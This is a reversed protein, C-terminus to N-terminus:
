PNAQHTLVAAGYPAAGSQLAPVARIGTAWGYGGSRDYVCNGSTLVHRTDILVGTCIYVTGSPLEDHSIELRVVANWPASTPSAILTLSGFSDPSAGAEAAPADGHSGNVGREDASVALVTEQGTAVDYVVLLPADGGALPPTQSTIDPAPVAILDALRYTRPVDQSGEAGPEEGQLVALIDWADLVFHESM